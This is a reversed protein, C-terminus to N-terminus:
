PAQSPATSGSPSASSGTGPSPSASSSPRPSGGALPAELLASLVRDREIWVITAPADEIGAVIYFGRLDDWGRPGAARYQEVYDGDDKTFAVIRGSRDDWGYMRGLTRPTGTGIMTYIPAPRLAGDPPEEPRWGTDKGAVFREITGADAAWIDGDILLDTFASVDRATALRGTPEGLYGVGDAAPSYMMVQQESPDVVYLRYLSCDANKCFTDIDIVDDGWTPADDIRVRALTGRGDDDSPRWRWVQNEVDVVLVDPGGVALLRPAAITAGGVADGARLVVAAQGTKGDVRLVTGNGRDLVYPRGDPGKVIATLDTPPEADPFTFAVAPRVEVVGYLEDLGEVVQARLPDITTAPIDAAEAAALEAYADELLERARRPDDSVLDVGPAWVEAIDAKAEELARQGVTLSAVSDRGGSGGALWVTIGLGGAVVVFALLAVAARRRSEERGAYTAVRQSPAARRPLRDQISAIARDLWGGAANRARTAGVGVASVGGQVSDALPIPSRDPAGALPEPPRVPVLTRQRHTASVEAAELTIIGDAGTGGGAVFRGHLQEAASQPHLTVLADKLADVGLREVVGSGVLVLSDGVTLEGRWVDPAVDAAPLGRDRNPDPLTSLRAGRVLYAEAPGVTLVYLEPGRAVALAIGVPGGTAPLGLRDRGHLLRKNALAVVKELCVRIGASEDYYYESRITEAVLRTAERARAGGSRATVLLYLNGKTRAVSGVTPEVLAITDPSDPLREREDVVGLKLSLRAAM